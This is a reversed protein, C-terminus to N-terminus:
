PVLPRRREAGAFSCACSAPCSRSVPRAPAAMPWSTGGDGQRVHHAPVGPAGGAAHPGASSWRPMTPRTESVCAVFAQPGPARTVFSAVRARMSSTVPCRDTQPVEAPKGPCVPALRVATVFRLLDAAVRRVTMTAPTAFTRTPRTLSTAPMMLPDLAISASDACEAASVSSWTNRSTDNRLPSRGALRSWGNPCPWSLYKQDNSAAKPM